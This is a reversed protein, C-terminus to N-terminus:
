TLFSSVCRADNAEEDSTFLLAVEGSTHAVATLLAAAAGKIDCVGLATARSDSVDLKFPDRTWTPAAPVTDLHVNLLLRPNGRHAFLSVSGAGHNTIAWQFGPLHSRVYEFIGDTGIQRPPNQTDFAVLERLHNLTTALLDSM